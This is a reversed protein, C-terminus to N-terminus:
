ASDDVKSVVESKVAVVCSALEHVAKALACAILDALSMINGVRSTEGSRNLKRRKRKCSCSEDIILNM